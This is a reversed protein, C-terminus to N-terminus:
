LSNAVHVTAGSDIWWTSKLYQTYLSENVFSITKNGKKAMISKLWVPCDKKYHGTKKSHLYTDKDVSFQRQQHQHQFPGKGHPKSSSQNTQTYNRKKNDKVYNTSGGYSAKLRDEEQVCMAIIKEIDWKKRRCTTTSL